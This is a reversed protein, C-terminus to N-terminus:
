LDLATLDVWMSQHSRQLTLLVVRKEKYTSQRLLQQVLPFRVSMASVCVLVIDNHGKHSKQIITAARM